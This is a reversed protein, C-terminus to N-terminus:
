IRIATVHFEQRSDDLVVTGVDEYGLNSVRDALLSMTSPMTKSKFAAILRGGLKLLPSFREILFATGQPETTVDVLLLDLENKDFLSFPDIKFADEMVISLNSNASALQLLADKFRESFEIGKAIAGKELVYELFGGASSGIDLVKDGSSVLKGGLLSDLHGLKDYGMLVDSVGSVTVSETGNVQTSPKALKGNVIILGERIARKATQRSRFRGNEVLWVDLRPM